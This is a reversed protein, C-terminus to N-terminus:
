RCLLPPWTLSLSRVSQELMLRDEVKSTVRWGTTACSPTSCAQILGGRVQAAGPMWSVRRQPRWPRSTPSSSCGLRQMLDRCLYLLILRIITVLGAGPHALPACLFSASAGSGRAKRETVHSWQMSMRSVVHSMISIAASTIRCLRAFDGLDDAAPKDRMANKAAELVDAALEEAVAPMRRLVARRAKSTLLGSIDRKIEALLKGLPSQDPVGISSHRVLKLADRLLGDFHALCDISGVDVTPAARATAPPLHSKTARTARAAGGARQGVPGGFAPFASRSQM